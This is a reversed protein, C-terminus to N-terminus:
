RAGWLFDVGARIAREVLIDHLKIRRMAFGTAGAFKSCASSEEDVFRIGTFPIAIDSNLHIGLARLAAVGHPLLGEGCPKDIPPMRADLVTTRIGCQSAAIATAIGAPGAGIVLVDSDTTLLSNGNREYSARKNPSTANSTNWFPIPHNNGALGTVNVERADFRGPRKELRQTEGRRSPSLLSEVRGHFRHHSGGRGSAHVMQSRGARRAM